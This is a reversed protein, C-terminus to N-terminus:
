PRISKRLKRGAATLRYRQRSSKPAEPHTMEVLGEALAPLLFHRRFHERDRVGVADQLARAPMEGELVQVLRVQPTVQPTVQPAVQPTVQPQRFTLTVGQRSEASWRPRTRTM